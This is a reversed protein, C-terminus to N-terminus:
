AECVELFFYEKKSKTRTSSQNKHIYLFIIWDPNIRKRRSSEKKRRIRIQSINKISKM